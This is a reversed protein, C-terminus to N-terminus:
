VNAAASDHEIPEWRVVGLFRVYGLMQAMIRYTGATDVPIQFFGAPDANVTTGTGVWRVLAGRVPEGSEFDIIRGRLPGAPGGVVISDFTSTPTGPPCPVYPGPHLAYRSSYCGGAVAAAALAAFCRRLLTRQAQKTM